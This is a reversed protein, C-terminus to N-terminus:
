DLRYALSVYAARGPAPFANFSTGAFNRIAYSFYDKDFLNRVEFALRAKGIEHELKLDVLAYSPMQRPMTNAQDNDFRQKGVHRLDANLRTAQAIRWSAGATLLVEPVLPVTNGTVDVGGYVGSRFKAEQVALGARLELASSARWGGELELGRRRTPSLNITSFTLPSFYIENKLKTDFAAVRGRWRGREVEVGAEATNATQPELLGPACPPFFCANDDFNGVRFSSGLKGFASWGGDFRQRLALEHAQLNRQQRRDDPFVEETLRERSRQVRSGLVARTRETLWLNLQGYWARNTQEGSRRSFPAAITAPSAASATIYDWRDFDAGLVLQHERGFGDFILKARPTFSWYEAETDVFFTGNFLLADAHKKRFALDTSFEHRGAKISGGLALRGGNRQGYDSPTTTQRRDTAIQAESLAGPLGSHQDDFGFRMWARANRPLRAELAGSVNTQQFRNNKRYGRTDEDSFALNFGLVEGQASYGARYEQTGWGGFRGQASARVDVGQGRREGAAASRTIINITGGSTGGGYLVGGSGRLIEIREISEIPLTSLQPAVVENESLRVGDVLVLTNESGTIGFGRLDLQQNPSGANDRVHLLGFRALIEPLNNSASARIDEATIVSVGVPLDRRSDPFRTATVVVADPQQALSPTNVFVLPAAFLAALHATRM